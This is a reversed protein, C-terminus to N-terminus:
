HSSWSLLFSKVHLFMFEMGSHKKPYQLSIAFKNSQTSESPKIMGMLFSPIIKWSVKIGLTNFDVQLFSQHKDTHLLDVKDRSRKQSVTFINYVQYKQFKAFVQGYGNFDYYWNTPFSSIPFDKYALLFNVEIMWKKRFINCFFPLSMVKTFKPM